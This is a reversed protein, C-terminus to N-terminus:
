FGIRWQGFFGFKCVFQYRLMLFHTCVFSVEHINKYSFEEKLLPVIKELYTTKLRNVKESETKEVLVTGTSAKVSLFGSGNRPNGYPTRVSLPPLFSPFQGHFSSTSSSLLSTSAMSLLDRSTERVRQKTHAKRLKLTLPRM